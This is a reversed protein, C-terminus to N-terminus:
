TSKKRNPDLFSKSKTSSVDASKTRKERSVDEMNILSELNLLDLEGKVPYQKLYEEDKDDIAKTFNGSIKELQITPLKPKRPVSVPLRFSALSLSRTTSFLARKAKLKKNFEEQDLVRKGVPTPAGSGAKLSSAPHTSPMEVGRNIFIKDKEGASVSASATRSSAATAVSVMRAYRSQNDKISLWLDTDSAM